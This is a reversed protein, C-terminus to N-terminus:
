SPQSRGTVRPRPFRLSPRTAAGFAPGALGTHLGRGFRRELPRVTATLGLALAFYRILTAGFIDISAAARNQRLSQAEYTLDRMSILSVLASSKMIEILLNGYPPLVAVM